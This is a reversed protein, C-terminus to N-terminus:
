SDIYNQEEPTYPRQETGYVAHIADLPNKHGVGHSNKRDYRGVTSAGAPVVESHSDTKM